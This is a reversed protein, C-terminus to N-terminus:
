KIKSSLMSNEKDFKRLISKKEKMVQEWITKRIDEIWHDEIAEKMINDFFIKNQLQEAKEKEEITSKEDNLIELLEYPVDGIDCLFSNNLNDRYFSSFTIIKVEQKNWYEHFKYGYWIGKEEKTLKEKTICLKTGISELLHKVYSIGEGWEKEEFIEYWREQLLFEQPAIMKGGEQVNYGKGSKTTSDYYNIWKREAEDLLKSLKLNEHDDVEITEITEYSPEGYKAIAVECLTRRDPDKSASMHQYHRERVSVRTQGIYVKGNPFTYKYIYGRKIM